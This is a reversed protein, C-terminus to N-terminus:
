ARVTRPFRDSVLDERQTDMTVSPKDCLNSSRLSRILHSLVSCHHFPEHATKSATSIELQQGPSSVTEKESGIHEARLTSGQM